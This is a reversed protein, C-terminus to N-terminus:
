RFGDTFRIPFCIRVTASLMSCEVDESQYPTPTYSLGAKKVPKGVGEESRKEM